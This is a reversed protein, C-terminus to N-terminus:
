AQVYCFQHYRRVVLKKISDCIKGCSAFAQLLSLVSCVLEEISVNVSQYCSVTLDCAICKIDIDQYIM